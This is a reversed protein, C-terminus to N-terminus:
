GKWPNALELGLFQFDKINRTALGASARMASAAVLADMPTLDRGRRKVDSRLRGSLMAVDANIAVTRKAFHIRLSEIQGTLRAKRACEPLLGVGYSLEHFAAASVFPRALGSVFLEVNADPEPRMLESLVNTDLLWEAASV